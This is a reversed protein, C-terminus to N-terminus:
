VCLRTVMAQKPLSSSALALELVPPDGTVVAHDDALVVRIPSGAPDTAM